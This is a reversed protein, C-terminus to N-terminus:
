TGSSKPCHIVFGWRGRERDLVIVDLRGGCAAQFSQRAIYLGLGMGSESTTWFPEFMRLRKEEDLADMGECTLLMDVGSEASDIHVQVPVSGQHQRFNELVNQLGQRWASEVVTVQAKGQISVTLDLAQAVRQVEDAVEVVVRQAQGANQQPQSLHQLIRGARQQLAPLVKQLRQVLAQAESPSACRQVQTSLLGMFQALNKLDHQFFLAHRRLQQQALHLQALRGNVQSVLLQLWLRTMMGYLVAREGRLRPQPCLLVELRIDGDGITQAQCSAQQIAEAQGREFRVTEGFWRLQVQGYGMGAQQLLPLSQPVFHLLDGEYRQKLDMLADMLRLAEKAQRHLFYAALLMGLGLVALFVGLLWLAEM